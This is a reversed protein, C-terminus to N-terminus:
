EYDDSDDYFFAELRGYDEMLWLAMDHYYCELKDHPDNFTEINGEGDFTAWQDGPAYSGYYVSNAIEQPDMDSMFEEFFTSLEAIPEYGNDEAYKNYLKVLAFGALESFLEKLTKALLGSVSATDDCGNIENLSFDDGREELYDRFDVILNREHTEVFHLMELMTEPSFM